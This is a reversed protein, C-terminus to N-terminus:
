PASVAATPQSAARMQQWLRRLVPLCDPSLKGRAYTIQSYLRALERVDGAVHPAVAGLHSAFEIPTEDPRRAADREFAWAQLAEFTYRVLQDPSSRAASGSAFPDQFAAFPRPPPATEAQEEIEQASKRGFLGSFIAKLEEWLKRIFELVQRRYKLFGFLAAAAMAAYMLWRIWSAMSINSLQPLRPLTRSPSENSAEPATQSEQQSDADPQQQDQQERTQSQDAARAGGSSNRGQQPPQNQDQQQASSDAGSSESDNQREEPKMEDPPRDPPNEANQKQSSEGQRGGSAQGESSQGQGNQGQRGQGQRSQGQRGQEQQGQQNQSPQGQSQEGDANQGASQGQQSSNQQGSNQQNSGQQGQGSQSQDQGSSQQNQSSSGQSGSQQNGSQQNGSSQNGGQEAGNQQTQGQSTQGQSTQSQSSQGQQGAGQQGPPADPPPPSQDSPQGSRRGQGEGPSDNLMAHQSASRTPSGLAGAILEEVPYEPSPRPILLTALLLAVILAAGVSLWAGTMTLPMELKRQRLYRRLGLFSTTLLLGLGSAVYAMLLWFVYRRRGLDDAPVFAQGLGFLPLAALSFFVVWLGPAHPRRRREEPDELLREWWSKKKKRRKGEPAQQEASEPAAQGKGHPENATESEDLGAIQLLGEGSADQSDDILTCDWTLKHACWWVLAMLGWAIFPSDVFRMMAVAVAGALAIGYVSAREAGEEMSIRAILVTGLVFWFMIWTLRAEYQGRYFVELLFFCLSGVLAMILAPSLAIVVYDISTMQPRSRAM